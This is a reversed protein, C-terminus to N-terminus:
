RSKIYRFYIKRQTKVQLRVKATDLPFTLADAICAATGATLFKSIITPSINDSAGVNQSSSPSQARVKFELDQGFIRKTRTKSKPPEVVVLTISEM